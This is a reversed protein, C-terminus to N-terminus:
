LILATPKYRYNQSSNLTDKQFGAKYSYALNKVSANINHRMFKMVCKM